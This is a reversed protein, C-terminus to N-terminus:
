KQSASEILETICEILEYKGMWNYKPKLYHEIHDALEEIKDEDVLEKRFMNEILTTKPMTMLWDDLLQKARETEISM